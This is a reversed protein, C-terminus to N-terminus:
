VNDMAGAAKTSSPTAIAADIHVAGNEDVHAGRMPRMGGCYDVEGCHMMHAERCDPCYLGSPNDVLPANPTPTLGRLYAWPKRETERPYGPLPSQGLVIQRYRNEGENIAHIAEGSM